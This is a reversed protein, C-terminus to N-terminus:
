SILSRILKVNYIGSELSETSSDARSLRDLFDLSDDEYMPEVFAQWSKGPINGAAAEPLVFPEKKWEGASVTFIDIHANPHNHVLTGESGVIRVQQHYSRQLMDTHLMLQPGDEFDLIFQTVDDTDIDLDSKRACLSTSRVVPGFLSIMWDLDCIADIGGGM